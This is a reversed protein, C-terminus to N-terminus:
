STLSELYPRVISAARCAEAARVIEAVTVTRTAIGDRLAEIAVDLGIKKRYRFCDVITRAPSTLRVPVGSVTRTQIGYLLMAGSFRVFRVPLRGLRPKHATRELAVWVERPAQTGIRHIHLATLLCVIASPAKKCVEAVTELETVPASTLRYLGRGIREVEGRRLMTALRRRPIGHAELDRPRLLDPLQASRNESTRNTGM